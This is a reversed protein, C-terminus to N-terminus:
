GLRPPIAVGKAAIGCDSCAERDIVFTPDALSGATVPCGPECAGCAISRRAVLVPM